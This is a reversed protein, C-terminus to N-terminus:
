RPLDRYASYTGIMRALVSAQSLPVHSALSTWAQEVLRGAYTISADVAGCEQLTELCRRVTAPDTPRAAVTRWLERMQSRPLLAIARAMPFNVKGARIDEGPSRGPGTSQQAPYVAPFGRCVDLADDAIQFTTGVTEFYASMATAVAPSSNALLAAIDALAYFGAATKLRYTVILRECLPEPDGTEIAQAMADAHGYLDLAQGAHGARLVALYTQYIRHRTLADIGDISRAVRDFAFYAATGANIALAEGVIQHAAPAGRRVTSGDEVDDVMETGVHLLEAAGMVAQFREPDGGVLQLAVMFIYPRWCKGGHDVLHRVPRVLAAGLDELPLHDLVAPDTSGVLGGATAADLRDPYLQRIQRRVHRAPGALLQEMSARGRPPLMEAFGLGHVPAGAVTGSASVRGEWFEGLTFTVCEQRPSVAALTLDLGAQESRLRWLTPYAAFSRASVWEEGTACDLDDLAISEGTAAVAVAFRCREVARERLRDWDLVVLVTLDWGNDLHVGVWWWRRQVVEPATFPERLSRSGIM